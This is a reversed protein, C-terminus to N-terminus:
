SATKILMLALFAGYISADNEDLDNLKLHMSELESDSVEYGHKKAIAIIEGPGQCASLEQRIGDDAMAKEFFERVTLPFDSKWREYAANAMESLSDRTVHFGHTKALTILEDISEVSALTTRLQQSRSVERFFGTAEAGALSLEAGALSLWGQGQVGSRAIRPDQEVGTGLTRNFQLRDFRDFMEACWDSGSYKKSQAVEIKLLDHNPNHEAM